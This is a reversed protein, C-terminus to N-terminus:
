PKGELPGWWEESYVDLVDYSWIGPIKITLLLTMSSNCKTVMTVSVLSHQTLSQNNFKTSLNEQMPSQLDPQSMTHSNWHTTCELMQHRITYIFHFGTSSLTRHDVFDPTMLYIYTTHKMTRIISCHLLQWLPTLLALLATFFCWQEFFLVLCALDKLTWDPLLLTPGPDLM